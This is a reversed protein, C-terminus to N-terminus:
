RHHRGNPIIRINTWTHTWRGRSGNNITGCASQASEFARRVFRRHVPSWTSGRGEPWPDNILLHQRQRNDYGRIVVIHGRKVGIRGWGIRVLVPRRQDIQNRVARFSIHGVRATSRVRNAHLGRGIAANSVREHRRHGVMDFQINAQSRTNGPRVFRLVMQVSAAACWMRGQGILPVPLEMRIRRHGSPDIWNVPDGACYGYLHWTDPQDNSGRYPDQTLFRGDVPNYFRANLYYLGTLEDWVGQTYALENFVGEGIRTTIGYDTYRYGQIFNMSDDIISTISGRFDSLYTVHEGQHNSSQCYQRAAIINGASSYINSARRQGQEDTTYLVQGARYTYNITEAGERKTIRQGDGRFVNTQVTRANALTTGQRVEILRNEVDYSFQRIDSVNGSAGRTEEAVLNGNECHVFNITGTSSTSRHLLNDMKSLIGLQMSM